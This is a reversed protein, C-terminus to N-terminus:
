WALAGTGWGALRHESRLRGHLITAETPVPPNHGKLFIVRLGTPDFGLILANPITVLQCRHPGSPTFTIEGIAAANGATLGTAM